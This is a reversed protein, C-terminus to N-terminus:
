LEGREYSDPNLLDMRSLLVPTELDFNTYILYLPDPEDTKDEYRIFRIYKIWGLEKHILQRCEETKIEEIKRLFEIIESHLIFNDPTYLPSYYDTGFLKDLFKQGPVSDKEIIKFNRTDCHIFKSRPFIFEKISRWRFNDPHPPTGYGMMDSLKKNHIDPM